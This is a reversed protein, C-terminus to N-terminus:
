DALHILYLMYSLIDRFRIESLGGFLFIFRGFELGPDETVRGAM